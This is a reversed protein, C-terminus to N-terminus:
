RDPEINKEEKFTLNERIKEVTKNNVFNEAQIISYKIAAEKSTGHCKIVPKELGLYLAGGYETYDMRQKFRKFTPLLFLGGIKSLLTASVEEKLMKSFVKGMGEVVKLIVNGVFGDCVAIDVNGMPIDRGEINGVFNLGSEKLLAFTSKALENGKMEETGINVLGVRPNEVGFTTKMYINGMIAFQLLNEPKCNSNSGGDVILVKGNYTPIIPALAPRDVGKMRGVILLAGTMLAGTNGASLFADGKGDKVLNLGVVMSSNKKTKIAKTPVDENEIVEDANLVSIRSDKCRFKNLYGEIVQSKGVLVIESGVMELASICGKIIEEPANDGGMADVIIRM